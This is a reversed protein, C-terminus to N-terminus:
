IGICMNYGTHDLQGASFLLQILKFGHRFCENLNVFGLTFYELYIRCINFKTFWLIINDFELACINHGTAITWNALLTLSTAILKALYFDGNVFLLEFTYDFPKSITCARLVEVSLRVVESDINLNLKKIM